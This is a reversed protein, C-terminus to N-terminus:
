EDLKIVILTLLYSPITWVIYTFLLFYNNAIVSIILPFLWIIILLVTLLIDKFKKMNFLNLNM